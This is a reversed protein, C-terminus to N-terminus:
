PTGVSRGTMPLHCYVTRAPEWVRGGPRAPDRAEPQRSRRDRPPRNVPTPIEEGRNKKPQHRHTPLPLKRRSIPDDVMTGPLQDSVIAPDPDSCPKARCEPTCKKPLRKEQGYKQKVPPPRPYRSARIAPSRRWHHIRTLRLLKPQASPKEHCNQRCYPPPLGTV